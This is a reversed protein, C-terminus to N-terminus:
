PVPPGNGRPRLLRLLEDLERRCLLRGAAFFTAIGLAMGTGTTVLDGPPLMRRALLVVALMAAAAASVRLVPAVIASWADLRGLTLGRALLAAHVLTAITTAAALGPAGFPLVLAFSLAVNVAVAIASVVVPRRQRGRAYDARALLLVATQFLLTPAYAAMCAGSSLADARTFEGGEFLLGM